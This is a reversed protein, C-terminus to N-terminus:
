GGWGGIFSSRERTGDNAQVRLNAGQAQFVSVIKAATDETVGVAIVQPYGRDTAAEICDKAEKLGCGTLTRLEKICDIKSRIGLGIDTMGVFTVDYLDNKSVVGGTQAKDAARRKREAKAAERRDAEDNAVSQCNLGFFFESLQAQLQNAPINFKGQFEIRDHGNGTYATFNVSANTKSM